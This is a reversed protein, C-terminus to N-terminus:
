MKKVITDMSRRCVCYNERLIKKRFLSVLNDYYYRRKPHIHPSWLEPCFIYFRAFEQNNQKVRLFDQLCGYYFHGCFTPISIGSQLCKHNSCSCFMLLLFSLSPWFALGALSAPGSGSTDNQAQPKQESVQFRLLNSFTM